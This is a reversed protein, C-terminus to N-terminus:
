FCRDIIVETKYSGNSSNGNQVGLTLTEFADACRPVCFLLVLVCFEFMM